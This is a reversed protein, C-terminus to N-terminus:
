QPIERFSLKKYNVAKLSAKIWCSSYFVGNGSAQSFSAPGLSADPLAGGADPILQLANPGGGPPYRTQAILLAGHIEGSGSKNSFYKGQGIVLVIGDWYLDPDYTFTGTVVLLGYGTVHWGTVDLNGNVVVTMPNTSSMGPLIVNSQNSITGLMGPGAPPTLVADAYGSIMQVLADLGSPKLLNPPLANSGSGVPLYGINPTVGGVGTYHGPLGAGTIATSITSYSSDANNVYGVATFNTPGVTCTGVPFQDRGDVFFWMSNPVAFQVNNGVLNLAAPFNLNLMNPAVVYQLLKKSGNPLVALSTVELAQVASAPPTGSVILSPKPAGYSDTHLPDYYLLTTSDPGGGDVNVNLSAKTVANIRVWKFVPGPIGAANTGAISPIVQVDPVGTIAGGFESQYEKDFYSNSSDTPDVTASPAPNVIYRVSSLGLPTGAAPMFNSVTNNFYDASKPQLRGRAEELGALAAYYVTSSSRYNAALASETGSSVILAIAVVSVLMM